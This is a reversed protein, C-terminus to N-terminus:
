PVIRVVEAGELSRGGKRKGKLIAVSDGETFGALDTEFHCVLDPLGDGNVDEGGRNCSRLTVEMGTKGFTLTSQDVESVANFQSTSLIAVPTLGESGANISPVDSGPQIAIGVPLPLETAFDLSSQNIAQLLAPSIFKLPYNGAVANVDLGIAIRQLVQIDASTLGIQTLAKVTDSDFGNQAIETELTFVDGSTITITPVGDRQWVNFLANLLGPEDSVLGALILGYSDAAQTQAVVWQTAGADQATQARNLSISIARAYAISQALNSFWANFAAALQSSIGPQVTVLAIAPVVPQVIQTFNQDPPDQAINNYYLALAKLFINGANLIQCLARLQPTPALQCFTGFLPIDSVSENSYERALFAADAKVDPPYLTAKNIGIFLSANEDGDFNNISAQFLAGGTGDVVFHLPVSQGYSPISFSQAPSIIQDVNLFENEGTENPDDSNLIAVIDVTDGKKLGFIPLTLPNDSGTTVTCTLRNNVIASCQAYASRTWCTSIAVLSVILQM